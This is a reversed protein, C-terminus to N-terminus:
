KADGYSQGVGAEADLPIGPAWSPGRRMETLAIQKCAEVEDDPVVWGLEDHSQLAFPYGQDAIRLADHMINIRALFQVINELFKAGYMHYSRGGYDYKYGQSTVDFRPNDYYMRLGGPGEVYGHGILVPGFQAIEPMGKSWTTALVGDLWQWRMAINRNLMRYMDVTKKALGPTWMDNIKTMDLGLTRASAYVMHFFRDAGCGYGLGLVGTKGIFREIVDVKKDIPRGFVYGALMAYPDLKDRFQTLLGEQGCIYASIRCEIQSKDAVVVKYGPPARLAKRLKSTKGGRGSPLNQMNLSWDGGFRHTHAAAYKLPIPMNGGCYSPWALRGISLMREGRTQEITSRAGLRAAALAQVTPDEHEMLKTMFDDTKAFAPILRDPDTGSPKYEVEVGHSKLLAEFGKTSRLNTLNTGTADILARQLAALEALHEQLMVTDVTFKPNVACRIVNDMVRWEARPLEGILLHFINRSMDNDNCAYAQYSRWYYPDGVMDARRKGRASAIVDGKRGVGLREGIASLSHRQLVHGRLAVAMRMTCLMRAPIFNYRWALICNDFLANFAVTTTQNPDLSGLLARLEDGSLFRSSGEGEFRVACGIVEFRPDLIYNPPAMNSLSYEQDYYTEFDLFLIPM